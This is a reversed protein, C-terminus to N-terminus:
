KTVLPQQLTRIAITLAAGVAVLWALFSLHGADTFPSDFAAIFTSMRAADPIDALRRAGAALGTAMAVLLFLAAGAPAKWATGLLRAARDNRARLIRWTAVVLIATALLTVSWGSVYALVRTTGLYALQQDVLEAADPACAATARCDSITTDAEGPRPSLTQRVYSATTLWSFTIIAAAVLSWTAGLHWRTRRGAALREAM